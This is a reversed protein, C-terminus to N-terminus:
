ASLRDVVVAATELAGEVWAHANSFSEGCLYIPVSPDPQVAAAMVDDSNFGPLWYAWGIERPDAGWHMFASGLAQPVEAYPHLAELYGTVADLLTGPAPDGNSVGDALAVIPRSDRGDTYGALIAAPGDPSGDFYFVKRLPLDTTSRIGTPGAEPVRWWPRDYWLYLKTAPFGEVSDYIWNHLPTALAPSTEALARLAPVPTTLVVRHAAV